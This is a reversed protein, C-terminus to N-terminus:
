CFGRSFREPAADEASLGSDGAPGSKKRHYIRLGKSPLDGHLRHAHDEGHVHEHGHDEGHVHDHSHVHAEGRGHEHGHLYEMDHDHNEHDEDLIVHFDCADIGSKIVRKIEIEFGSVPLSELVERLVKEDAGLDLLAAVTMDGSIGSYCELYLKNGSEM